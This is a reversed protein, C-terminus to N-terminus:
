QDGDEDSEEIIEIDNLLDDIDAMNDATRSLQDQVSQIMEPTMESILLEPEENPDGDERDLGLIAYREKRLVELGKIAKNLAALDPDASSIARGEKRARLVADMVMKSLAEAFSYHSERTETVRKATIQAIRAAEDEIPQASEHARSGREIGADKLRRWLTQRAVGYKDAIEQLSMTGLEWITKVQAWEADTLRKLKSSDEESSM